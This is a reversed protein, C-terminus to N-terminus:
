CFGWFGSLRASELYSGYEVGDYHCDHYVNKSYM